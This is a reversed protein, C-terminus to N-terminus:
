DHQDFDQPAIQEILGAKDWWTHHEAIKDGTIRAVRALVSRIRSDPLDAPRVKVTWSPVNVAVPRGDRDFILGRAAPLAVDVTRDATARRTYEDGNVVQLQFLRGGLAVLLFLAAVGFAVFRARSRRLDLRGDNVDAM